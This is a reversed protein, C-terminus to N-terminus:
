EGREMGRERGGGRRREEGGGEPGQPREGRGEREQGRGRGGINGTLAFIDAISRSPYDRTPRQRTPGHETSRPFIGLLGRM